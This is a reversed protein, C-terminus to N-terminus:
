PVVIRGFPIVDYFTQVKLIAATLVEFIAM